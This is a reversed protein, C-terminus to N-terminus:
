QNSTNKKWNQKVFAFFTKTKISNTNISRSIKISMEQIEDVNTQDNM